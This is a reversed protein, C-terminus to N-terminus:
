HVVKRKPADAPWSGSYASAAEAEGQAAGDAPKSYIAHWQEQKTIFWEIVEKLQGETHFPCPEGNLLGVFIFRAPIIHRGLRVLHTPNPDNTRAFAVLGHLGSYDQLDEGWVYDIRDWEWSKSLQSEVSPVGEPKTRFINWTMGLEISPTVDLILGHVTM